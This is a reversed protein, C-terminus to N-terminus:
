FDYNFSATGYIDRYDDSENDPRYNFFTGFTWEMSFKEMLQFKLGMSLDLDMEM